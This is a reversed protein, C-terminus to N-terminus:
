RGRSECATVFLAGERAGQLSAQSPEFGGVAAGNEEIFDAVQGGFCLHRQQPHQLLPFDFPDAATMGDRTMRLSARPVRAYRLVQKKPM